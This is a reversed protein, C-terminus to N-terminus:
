LQSMKQKATWPWLARKRGDEVIVVFARIFTFSPLIKEHSTRQIVM